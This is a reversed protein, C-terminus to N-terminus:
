AYKSVLIVCNARACLCLSPTKKVARSALSLDDPNKKRLCTVRGLSKKSKTQICRDDEKKVTSNRLLFKDSFILAYRASTFSM